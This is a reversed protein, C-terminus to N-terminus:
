LGGRLGRLIRLNAEIIRCVVLDFNARVRARDCVHLEDPLAGKVHLNERPHRTSFLVGLPQSRFLRASLCTTPEQHFAGVLTDCDFKFGTLAVVFHSGQLAMSVDMYTSDYM